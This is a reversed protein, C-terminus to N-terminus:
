KCPWVAQLSWVVGLYRQIGWTEPRQQTWNKFAQIAAGATIATKPCIGYPYTSADSGLVMMNDVAANMYGICYMQRHLDSSACQEYLSQVSLSPDSAQIKAIDSPSLNVAFSISTTFTMVLAAKCTRM